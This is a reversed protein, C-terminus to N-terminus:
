KWKKWTVLTTLCTMLHLRWTMELDSFWWSALDGSASKEEFLQGKKTDNKNETLV